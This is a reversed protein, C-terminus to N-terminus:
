RRDRRQWTCPDCSWDGQDWGPPGQARNPLRRLAPGADQILELHAVAPEIIPQMLCPLRKIVNPLRDSVYLFPKLEVILVLM